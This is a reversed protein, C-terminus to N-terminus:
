ITFVIKFIMIMMFTLLLPGFCTNFVNSIYDNRYKTDSLSFSISLLIILFIVMYNGGINIIDSSFVSNSIISLRSFPLIGFLIVNMIGHISITFPLNKTKHFLYGIIIGFISAFLIENIMGYTSHMIGFLIGTLIIGFRLGFLKKLRTQLIPRFIIEEVTGIFVIMIIAIDIINPLKIDDILAVPNIIRYEFFASVIGILIAIPIYVYFKRFNIGLDKSSIQQNKITYYIAVFMIGYILPYQLLSSTFFQPMSLNVVRLLAVLTLGQLVSKIDTDLDYFIILFIILLLNLLHLALGALINNNFILLEGSILNLIPIYAWKKM